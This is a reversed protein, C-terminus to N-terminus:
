GRKPPAMIQKRDDRRLRQEVGAPPVALTACTWRPDGEHMVQEAQLKECGLSIVLAEGGLNPTRAPNRVTRIPIYADRANIAVGCGYSHTLAVVDDVNPYKPLLEDRIRKVAHELVGTVCQVTTSIGLINRTGVTGDTNRYGEFTYGELPDLAAPVATARPLSDLPPASPMKLQTEKVWSGRRLPELAYGIIQGYRRVPEGEGIDMLAVKHSQPVAEVTVLGGEFQAGVPVGGDNVVVAVNDAENLRICRPSDPPSDTARNREHRSRNTRNNNQEAIVSSAM